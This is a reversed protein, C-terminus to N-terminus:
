EVYVLEFIASRSLFSDSHSLTLFRVQNLLFIMVSLTNLKSQSSVPAAVYGLFLRVKMFKMAATSCSALLCVFDTL